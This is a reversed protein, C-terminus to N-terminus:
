NVTSPFPPLRVSLRQSSTSATSVNDSIPGDANRQKDLRAWLM